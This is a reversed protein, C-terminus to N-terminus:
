IGGADAGYCCRNSMDAADSFYPLGYNSLQSLVLPLVSDPLASANSGDLFCEEIVVLLDHKIFVKVSSSVAPANIAVIDATQMPNSETGMHAVFSLGNDNPQKCLLVDLLSSESSLHEDSISYVFFNHTM